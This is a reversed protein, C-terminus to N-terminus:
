FHHGAKGLGKKMLLSDQELAPSESIITMDMGHRLIEAFLKQFDQRKDEQMTVHNREGKDTFNIGSLHCHLRELKLPELKKFIEAYDISGNNRAFVHSWDLVPACGEAERCVKVIEDVTGFQSRKGTTEMGLTVNWGKKEIGGAMDACADKIMGHCKEPQGGYFGPHFVVIWAGMEAAREVSQMIRWKSAKVKEPNCLNIYYPAHVSLTIGLKKAAKGVEVATAAGMSVGRVFEVEMAGLEMEAVREVGAVSGSGKATLPVGAPGLLIKM